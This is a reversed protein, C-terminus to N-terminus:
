IVGEDALSTYSDSTLIIHDLVAIELLSAFEKIRRTIRKDSESPNLSGSPHNHSLIFASSNLKIVLQFIEQINVVVGSVGGEGIKSVGLVTNSKNLLIVYFFEKLDIKNAPYIQRLLDAADKSCSIKISPSHVKRKYSIEVESFQLYQNEDKATIENKKM